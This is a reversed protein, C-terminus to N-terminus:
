GVAHPGGCGYRLTWLAAQTRDAVGLEHYVKTLHAKVTRVTIGLGQAIAKNSRGDGVMVLVQWERGTLQVASPEVYRRVLLVRAVRPDPPSACWVLDRIAEAIVEPDGDDILYGAAGVALSDVILQPDARSTLVLLRVHPNDAVITAAERLGETGASSLEIAVVDPQLEKVVAVGGSTCPAVGVLLLDDSNGVVDALGTRNVLHDGVILVSIM